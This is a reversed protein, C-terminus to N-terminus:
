GKRPLTYEPDKFQDFGGVILIRCPDMGSFEIFFYPIKYAYEGRGTVSVFGVIEAINGLGRHFRRRKNEKDSFRLTNM